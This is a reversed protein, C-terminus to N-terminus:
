EGKGNGNHGQKDDRLENLIAQAQEPTAVTVLAKLTKRGPKRKGSELLSVMQRTVGIVEAFETQNMGKSKRIDAILEEM